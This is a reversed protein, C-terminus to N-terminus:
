NHLIVYMSTKTLMFSFTNYTMGFWHLLQSKADEKTLFKLAGRWVPSFGNKGIKVANPTTFIYTIFNQSISYWLAVNQLSVM